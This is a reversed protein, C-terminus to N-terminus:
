SSPRSGLLHDALDGIKGFYEELKDYVEDAKSDSVSATNVKKIMEKSLTGDMANKIIEFWKDLRQAPNGKIDISSLDVDPSIPLRSLM